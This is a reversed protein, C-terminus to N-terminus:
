LWVRRRKFNKASGVYIKGNESNTIKYITGM